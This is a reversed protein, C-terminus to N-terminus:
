TLPASRDHLPMAVRGPEAAPTLSVLAGAVFVLEVFLSALGLYSEVGGLWEEQYGGPLGTTRSLCFLVFEAACVVSELVWMPARLRDRDSALGVMVLGLVGSGIVFLVGIYLKEELHDPTLALHIGLNVFAAAVATWRVVGWQSASM